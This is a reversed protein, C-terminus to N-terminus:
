GFKEQFARRVYPDLGIDILRQEYNNEEKERQRQEYYNMDRAQQTANKHKWTDSNVLYKLLRMDVPRYSGDPNEVRLVMVKGRKNKDSWRWLEWRNLRNNWQFDLARDYSKIQNVISVSISPSGM